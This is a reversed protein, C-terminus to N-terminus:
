PKHAGCAFEIISRGTLKNKKVWDTLVTNLEGDEPSPGWREAGAAYVAKYRNEYSTYYPKDEFNM